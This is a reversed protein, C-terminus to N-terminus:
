GRLCFWGWLWDWGWLWGGDGNLHGVGCHGPLIPVGHSVRDGNEMAALCWGWLRQGWETTALYSLLRTVLELGMALVM